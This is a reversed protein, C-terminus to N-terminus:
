FIKKEPVLVGIAKHSRIYCQPHLDYWIQVFSSDLNVMVKKIALDFKIGFAYIHSFDQVTM